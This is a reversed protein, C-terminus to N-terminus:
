SLLAEKLNELLWVATLVVAWILAFRALSRALARAGPRDTPVADRDPRVRDIVRTALAAVLCCVFGFGIAPGYYLINTVARTHLEPVQALFVTLLFVWLVLFTENGFVTCAGPLRRSPGSAIRIGYSAWGFATALAALGGLVIWLM